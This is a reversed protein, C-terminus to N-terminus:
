CVLKGDKLIKRKKLRKTLSVNAAKLKSIQERYSEGQLWIRVRHEEVNRDLEDELRSVEVRLHRNEANLSDVLNNDEEVSEVLNAILERADILKIADVLNEIISSTDTM